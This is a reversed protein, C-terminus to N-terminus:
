ACSRAGAPLSPTSGSSRGRKEAFDPADSELWTRPRQWRIREAQLIRRVQSRKIPLGERNLEAALRDLAWHCTPPAGGDPPPPPLARAKAIVRGRNEETYTPPRGARPADALGDLGAANFREVWARVTRDALGLGRAIAPATAGAASRLVIEARRALRVPATQSRALRALKAREEDTLDRVYLAM